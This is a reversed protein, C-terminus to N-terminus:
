SLTEILRVLPLFYAVAVVLVMAGLSVVIVPFLLNALAALRYSLRRDNSDAQLKMAWPLNGAREAADLVAADSRGILGRRRLAEVWSRGAQVEELARALRRRVWPRPYFGALLALGSTLPKGGEIGIALSRLLAATDRRRMLLGLLPPEWEIWGLYVFPIYVMIAVEMLILVPLVPLAIWSHIFRVVAATIRPMEVGFDQFIAEYRPAIFYIIFGMVMQFGVLSLIVYGVKPLFSARYSGQSSRAEVAERLAQGLAGDRWGVCALVVADRPLIGPINALAHPLPAGGELMYALARVRRRYGGGCLASFAEVGPALPMGREAAIAMIRLLAEQYTSRRKILLVVGGVIAAMPLFAIGLYLIGLGMRIIAALLLAIVVVAFMLHRLGIGRGLRAPRDSPPM